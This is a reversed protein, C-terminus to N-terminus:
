GMGPTVCAPVTCHSFGAANTDATSGVVPAQVPPSLARFLIQEFFTEGQERRTFTFDERQDGSAQEVFLGCGDEPYGLDRQLDM